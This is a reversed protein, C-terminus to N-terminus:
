HQQAFHAQLFSRLLPLYSIIVFVAILHVCNCFSLLLEKLKHIARIKLGNMISKM